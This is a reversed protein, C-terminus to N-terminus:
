VEQRKREEDAQQKQKQAAVSKDRASAQKDKKKGKGAKGQKNGGVKDGAGGKDSAAGDATALKRAQEEAELELLLQQSARERAQNAAAEVGGRIYELAASNIDFTLDVSCCVLMACVLIVCRDFEALCGHDATLM